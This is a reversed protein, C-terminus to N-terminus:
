ETAPAAEHEPATVQAAPVEPRRLQELQAAPVYAPAPAAAHLAAAREPTDAGGGGLGVAAQALDLV